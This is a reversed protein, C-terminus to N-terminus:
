ALRGVGAVPDRELARPEEPDPRAPVLVPHPRLFRVALGGLVHEPHRPAPPLPAGAPQPASRSRPEPPVHRRSEAFDRRDREAPTGPLCAPRLKSGTFPIRVGPVIVIQVRPTWGMM